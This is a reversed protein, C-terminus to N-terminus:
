IIKRRVKKSINKEKSNNIEYNELFFMTAQMLLLERGNNTGELAIALEELYEYQKHTYGLYDLIKLLHKQSINKKKLIVQSIHSQNLGCANAVQSINKDRSTIMAKIVSLNEM